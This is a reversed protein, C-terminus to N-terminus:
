AATLVTTLFAVLLSRGTQNYSSLRLFAENKCKTCNKKQKKVALQFVGVMMM